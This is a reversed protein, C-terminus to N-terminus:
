DAGFGYHTKPAGSTIPVVSRLEDIAKGIKDRRNKEVQSHIAKGSNQPKDEGASKGTFINCNSVLNASGEAYLCSPQDM